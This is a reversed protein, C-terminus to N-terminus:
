PVVGARRSRALACRPRTCGAARAHTSAPRRPGLGPHESSTADARAHLGTGGLVSHLAARLATRGGGLLAPSMGYIIRYMRAARGHARSLRWPRNDM